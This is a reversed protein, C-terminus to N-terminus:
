QRFRTFQDDRAGRDRRFMGASHGGGVAAELNQTVGFGHASRHDPSGRDRDRSSMSLAGGRRHEGVNEHAASEIRTEDGAGVARLDTPARSDAGVAERVMRIRGVGTISRSDEHGLGALEIPGEMVVARRHRQDVVHFFVVEVEVLRDVLDDLAEMVEGAEEGRRVEAASEQDGVFATMSALDRRSERATDFVNPKEGAASKWTKKSAVALLIPMRSRPAKTASHSELSAPWWLAKFAAAAPM